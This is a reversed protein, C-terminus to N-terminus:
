LPFPDVDGRRLSRSQHLRDLQPVRLIDVQGQAQLRVPRKAVGGVRRIDRLQRHARTPSKAQVHRHEPHLAEIEELPAGDPHRKVRHGDVQDLRLRRPRRQDHRAVPEGRSVVQELREHVREALHDLTVGHRPGSVRLEGPPEVEPRDVIRAAAVDDVEHLARAGRQADEVHRALGPHGRVARAERIDLPAARPAPEAHRLPVARVELRLDRQEARDGLRHLRSDGGDRPTALIEVPLPVV